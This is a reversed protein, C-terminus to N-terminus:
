MSEVIRQLKVVNENLESVTLNQKHCYAGAYLLAIDEQDKFVKKYRKYKNFYFFIFYVFAALALLVLLTVLILYNRASESLFELDPM